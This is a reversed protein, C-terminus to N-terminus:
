PLRTPAAGGGWIGRAESQAEQQAALFTQLCATDPSDMGVKALGDQILAQNVFVDGVMVYRLLTGSSDADNIDRVLVAPKGFILETNRAMALRGQIDSEGSLRPAEVGLYHVSYVRGDRDMLVRVTDGDLVEVVRGTQPLDAPICAAEPIAEAWPNASIAGNAAAPVETPASTLIGIFSPVEHAKAGTASETEIGVTSIAAVDWPTTTPVWPMTVFRRSLVAFLCLGISLGCGILILIRFRPPRFEPPIANTPRQSPGDSVRSANPDTEATPRKKYSRRSSLPM